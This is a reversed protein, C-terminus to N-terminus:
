RAPRGPTWYRLYSPSGFDHGGAGERGATWWPGTRRPDLVVVRHNGTDAVAVLGGPGTAVGRPELFKQRGSSSEGFVQPLVLDETLRVLRDNTPDTAFVTGSGREVAVDATGRFRPLPRIDAGDYFRWTRGTRDELDDLRVVQPDRGATVVYLRGEADFDLGAPSRFRKGGDSYETWGNGELDDMRVVRHAQPDSVFIRGTRPHVAVAEPRAFRRGDRPQFEAWGRGTSDDIRVLRGNGSDVVLLRGQRDVALGRPDLLRGRGTGRGGLSRFQPRGAKEGLFVVKHHESDAVALWVAPPVGPPPGEPVAAGEPARATPPALSPRPRTPDTRDYLFIRGAVPVPDPPDPLFEKPLGGAWVCSWPRNFERNGKGPAGSVTWNAGRLDDVRVLRSNGSDTVILRGERDFTVDRPEYLEGQGRGRAGFVQPNSLDEELRVVADGAMLVLYVSGDAAPTVGGLGRLGQFPAPLEAGDYVEWNRGEVDLDPDTIRVLRGSGSCAIYLRGYRDFAVDTPQRLVQSRDSYVVRGKGTMDDFRLVADLGPDAVYIRGTVPDVAIRLPDDFVPQDPGGLTAWGRGRFDDMRVIRKNRRDVVFLRNGPDLTLDSPERFQGKGSGTRGFTRWGRGDFRDMRVIRDNGGDAVYYDLGPPPGCGALCLALLAGLLGLLRCIPVRLPAEARRSPGGPGLGM